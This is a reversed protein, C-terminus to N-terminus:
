SNSMREDLPETLLVLYTFLCIQVVENSRIFAQMLYILHCCFVYSDDNALIFLCGYM